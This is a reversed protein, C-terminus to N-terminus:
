KVIKKMCPLYAFVTLLCFKIKRCWMKHHLSDTIFYFMWIGKLMFIYRLIVLTYHLEQLLSYVNICGFGSPNQQIHTSTQQNKVIRENLIREQLDFSHTVTCSNQLWCVCWALIVLNLKLWEFGFFSFDTQSVCWKEQPLCHEGFILFNILSLCADGCWSPEVFLAINKKWLDSNHVTVIIGSFIIWEFLFLLLASFM